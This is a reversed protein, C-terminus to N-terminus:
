FLIQSFVSFCFQDGSLQSWVFSCDLGDGSCSLGRGELRRVEFGDGGGGVQQLGLRRRQPEFFWLMLALSSTIDLLTVPYYERQVL